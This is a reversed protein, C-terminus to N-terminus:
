PEQNGSLDDNMQGIGGVKESVVKRMGHGEMMMKLEEEVKKVVEGCRECFFVESRWCM